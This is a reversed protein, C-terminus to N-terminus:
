DTYFGQDALWQQTNIHKVVEEVDVWIQNSAEYVVDVNADWMWKWFQELTIKEVLDRWDPTEYKLMKTTRHVKELSGLNRIMTCDPNNCGWITGVSHEPTGELDHIRKQKELLMDIVDEDEEVIGDRELETEIKSIFASEFDSQIWSNWNEELDGNKMDEVKEGIDDAYWPENYAWSSGDREIQERIEENVPIGASDCLLAIGFSGHSGLLSFWGDQDKFEEEFAAAGARSYENGSYDSGQLSELAFVVVTKGYYEDENFPPGEKNAGMRFHNMSGFGLSGGADRADEEEIWYYTGQIEKEYLM